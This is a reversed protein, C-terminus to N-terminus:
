FYVPEGARPQSWVHQLRKKWGCWNQTHFAFLFARAWRKWTIKVFGRWGRQGGAARGNVLTPGIICCSIKSTIETVAGPSHGERLAQTSSGGAEERIAMGAESPKRKPNSFTMSECHLSLCSPRNLPINQLGTPFPSFGWSDGRKKLSWVWRKPFGGLEPLLGFGLGTFAECTVFALGLSLWVCDVLSWATALWCDNGDTSPKASISGLLNKCM